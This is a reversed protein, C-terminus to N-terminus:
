SYPSTNVVRVHERGLCDENLSFPRSYCSTLAIVYSSPPAACAALVLDMLLTENSCVVSLCDSVLDHVWIDAFSAMYWGEQGVLEAGAQIYDLVWCQSMAVMVHYHARKEMGGHAPGETKGDTQTDTGGNDTQGDM